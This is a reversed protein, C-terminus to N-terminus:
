AEAPLLIQGCQERLVHARLRGVSIGLSDDITFDDGEKRL